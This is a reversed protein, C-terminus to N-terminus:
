LLLVPEAFSAAASGSCRRCCESLPVLVLVQARHLVCTTQRAKNQPQLGFPLFTRIAHTKNHSKSRDNVDSGAIKGDPYEFALLEELRVITHATHVRILTPLYERTQNRLDTEFADLLTHLCQLPEEARKGHTSRWIDLTTHCGHGADTRPMSIFIITRPEPPQTM